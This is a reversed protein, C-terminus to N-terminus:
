QLPTSDEAYDLTKAVRAVGRLFAGAAEHSFLISTGGFELFLRDGDGAFGTAGVAIVAERELRAYDTVLKRFEVRTM